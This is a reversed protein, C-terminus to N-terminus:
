PVMVKMNMWQLTEKEGPNNINKERQWVGKPSNTICQKTQGINPLNMEELKDLFWLMFIQRNELLSFINDKCKTITTKTEYLM